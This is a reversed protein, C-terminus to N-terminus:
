HIAPGFLVGVPPVVMTPVSGTRAVGDAVSGRVWRSLGSAGRTTMVVVTKPETQALAVIEARPDGSVVRPLVERVQPRLSFAVRGLYEFAEAAEYESSGPALVTLLVVKAGFGEAVTAAHRLATEALESGDLPLVVTEIEGAEEATDPANEARVILVPVPSGLTVRDTVSGLLGRVLGSRGRTAMVIVDAKIGRALRIIESAPDGEAIEGTVRGDTARAVAQVRDMYMEAEHRSHTEVSPRAPGAATRDASTEPSRGAVVTVLPKQRTASSPAQVVTVLVPAAGTKRCLALALPLAREALESGDL